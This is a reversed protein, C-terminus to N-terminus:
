SADKNVPRRKLSGDGDLDGLSITLPLRDEGEDLDIGEFPSAAGSSLTFAPMTSTGTNEYYIFNVDEDSVVLDLDGDNDLDALAPKSYDGSSVGDFPNASGTRQVFVPATSTGTNEIYTSLKGDKEGVVVDM